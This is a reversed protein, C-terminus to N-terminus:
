LGSLRHRRVIAVFVPAGLVATVIAVQVEGPRAVVRGVVDATLLLIPALLMSTPLIRRYDSGVLARAAHPITLGVFGVPGAAATAAGCLLVVAAASLVRILGVRAGLGRAVDDGMALSNLGRGLALALVGGVLLFPLVRVTVGLDRGNLSGVQWFRFQDFTQQDALLLATTFAGFFATVAAGALALKVPTAGERGLAAVSYVLVSAGAAGAFAFWVYGSVSGVGFVGIGVVIALAAGGNVGLIGPDALPNRTVGQMVAGALGLAAGVLLGLVTRPLRSTVVVLQDTDDPDYRTLADLVTGAPISRAGIALSALVLLVLVGGALLLVPASRRRAPGRDPVRRTAGPRAATLAM